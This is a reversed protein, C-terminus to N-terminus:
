LFMYGLLFKVIALILFLECSLKYPSPFSFISVRSLPSSYTILFEAIGFKYPSPRSCIISFLPVCAGRLYLLVKTPIDPIISKSEANHKIIPKNTRLDSDKKCKANINKINISTIVAISLIILKKLYSFWELRFLYM